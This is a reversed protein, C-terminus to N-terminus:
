LLMQLDFEARTESLRFNSNANFQFLIESGKEHRTFTRKRLLKEADQESIPFTKRRMNRAFFLWTKMIRSYKLCTVNFRCEHGNITTVYDM